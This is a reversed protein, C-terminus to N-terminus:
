AGRVLCSTFANTENSIKEAKVEGDVLIRCGITNSNGQAVISGIIAASDSSITMSWPLPAGGVQQPNADADFYNIDAVAGEPGFVEYVLQKAGVPKSEEVPGQGYSPRSETGFASHLRLVAYGGLGIVVVVVLPLWVRSLLKIAM